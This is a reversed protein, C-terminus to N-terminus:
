RRERVHPVVTAQVARDAITRDLATRVMRALDSKRYPKPLLLVGADLRGHHVIANETYGSTYLIKASPRRKAVEDALQRGNIGGPMIVDTFLLDFAAGADVQALAARGDAAMVTQYGLSTLQTVLFERVLADDEVVLITETGGEVPAPAISPADSQAIACPLYLKITTGHGEESYIKIHGNSQKVFGYVMSLGLGTGKGVEKTTFFPEFVKDRLKMPIGTGTDSVAIMVYTGPQVGANGQAYSEDLVVNGTELTLKGGGPMADRANMALNLLATALQTPDIRASRVDDELMSEIEIHEGLTPRLLQAADLVMANVDVDRPQLPQKRAFALLHGTLDAGRKGAQNIMKALALLDPQAKLSEILMEAVGVIVTLMNNFDHAVGGTLQGIADLKQSQHLQRETEKLATVDHFVIVAGTVRGAADRLPRASGLVHIMRESGFARFLLEYGDVREGRLCRMSPWDNHPVPTVGDAAFVEFAEGWAPREVGAPPKLMTRSASNEYIVAGQADVLLVAEGMTSMINEFVQADRRIAATKQNVDRLLLDRQEVADTLEATRVLVREEVASLAAERDRHARRNIRISTIAIVMLLAAGCLDIALLTRSAWRLSASRIPLLRREEANLQRFDDDLTRMLAPGETTNMLSSLTAPEAPIQLQLAGQLIGLRRALMPETRALLQQQFDNDATAEKLVSFAPMILASAVRYDQLFAVEGTLVYGRMASEANRLPQQVDSIKGLVEWTHSVWDADSRTKIDLSISAAGIGILIAFGATLIFSQRRM